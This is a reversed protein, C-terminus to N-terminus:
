RPSLVNGVEDDYIGGTTTSRYKHLKPPHVPISCVDKWDMAPPKSTSPLRETEICYIMYHVPTTSQQQQLQELKFRGQFRQHTHSTKRGSDWYDHYSYHFTETEPFFELQISSGHSSEEGYYHTESWYFKRSSFPWTNNSTTCISPLNEVRELEKSHAIQLTNKAIEKEQQIKKAVLSDSSAILNQADSEFLMLDSAWYLTECSENHELSQQLTLYEMRLFRGSSTFLRINTKSRNTNNRIDIKSLYNQIDKITITKVDINELVYEATPDFTPNYCDVYIIRIQSTPSSTPTTTSSM